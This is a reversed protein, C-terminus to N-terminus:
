LLRLVRPLGLPVIVQFQHLIYRIVELLYLTLLLLVVKWLLLSSTYLLCAEYKVQATGSSVSRQHVQSLIRSRTIHSSNLRTSKRDVDAAEIAADSGMAGMAIGIDARTLVPADNIGDGVFALKDKEAKTSLLEEVKSVKDAPLLESYVQRKYM